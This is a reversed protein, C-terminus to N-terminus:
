VFPNPGGCVPVGTVLENLYKSNIFHIQNKFFSLKEDKASLELEEKTLGFDKNL